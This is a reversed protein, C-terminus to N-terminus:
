FLKNRGVLDDRLYCAINRQFVPLTVKQFVSLLQDSRLADSRTQRYANASMRYRRSRFIINIQDHAALFRQAQCLSKFRGLLKERKRTLRHSVEIRINLGEPARHDVDPALYRPDAQFLEGAQMHDCRAAPRIACDPPESVSAGSKCQTTAPSPRVDRGCGDGALALTERRQDPNCSRGSAM